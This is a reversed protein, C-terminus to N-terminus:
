VVGEEQVNRFSAAAGHRVEHALMCSSAAATPRMDRDGIFVCPAVNQRANPSLHGTRTGPEDRKVVDLRACRNCILGNLILHEFRQPGQETCPAAPEDEGGHKAVCGM